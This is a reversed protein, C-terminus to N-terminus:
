IRAVQPQEFKNALTSLTKNVDVLATATKGTNEVIKKTDSEDRVGRNAASAAAQMAPSDKLEMGVGGKGGITIDPKKALQPEPVAMPEPATPALKEKAAAVKAAAEAAAAKAYGAPDTNADPMKPGLGLGPGESFGREKAAAIKAAAEAAAKQALGAPGEPAPEKLGMGLSPGEKVGGAKAAAIKAAAEDAAKRALGAPGSYDPPQPPEPAVTAAGAAAAARKALEELSPQPAGGMTRGPAPPALDALNPQPKGGLGGPASGGPPGGGPPPPLANPNPGMPLPLKQTAKRRAEEIFSFAEKSGKEMAGTAGAGQQMAKQYDDAAKALAKQHTVADILGENLLANADSVAANYKQAPDYLSEKLKEGAQALKETEKAQQEQAKAAQKAAEAAELAQRAQALQEDSAGAGKLDFLKKDTESMGATEGERMARDLMDKLRDEAQKAKKAAEDAAKAADLAALEKQAQELQAGSAGSAALDELKKQSDTMGIQGAETRVKELMEALKEQAKAAQETEESIGAMAEKEAAAAEAATQSKAKADDWFKLFKEGLNGFGVDPILASMAAAGSQGGVLGAAAVAAAKAAPAFDLLIATYQKFVEIAFRVNEVVGGSSKILALMEETVATIAPALEIALTNGAGEAALGLKSINDNAQAVKAADVSSIVQGFAEAEEKSDGFGKAIASLAGLMRVGSKGFIEQAAAAREAPNKIGDLAQAIKVYAEDPKMNALQTADLGLKNLTDATKGGEAAAKGLNKLMKQVSGDLEEAGVGAFGAAYRLASLAETSVGINAAADDLQDIRDLAESTATAVAMFATKAIAAAALATGIGAAAAIGAPGLSSLVSGFAGGSPLAGTAANAFNKLGGASEDVATAVVTFDSKAAKVARNFTDQDIAGAKLQSSLNAITAQYKEAPTRTAEFTAKGRKLLGDFERYSEAAQDMSQSFDSVDGGVSVTVSRAM